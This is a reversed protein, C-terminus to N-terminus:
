EPKEKLEDSEMKQPSSTPSDLLEEFEINCSPCKTDEIDIETGCIPCVYEGMEETKVDELSGREDSELHNAHEGLVVEKKSILDMTMTKLGELETMDGDWDELVEGYKKNIDQLLNKVRNRLKNGNGDYIAAIFLDQSKEILIKGASFKMEDLKWDDFTKGSLTDNIFDQIATFM